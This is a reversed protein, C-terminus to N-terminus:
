RYARDRLPVPSGSEGPATRSTRNKSALVAGRWQFQFLLAGRRTLCATEQWQSGLLDSAFERMEELTNIHSAILWLRQPRSPDAMSLTLDTEECSKGWCVRQPSGRYYYRFPDNAFYYVYIWDRPQRHQELYDVLPQIEERNNTPHLGERIIELPQV